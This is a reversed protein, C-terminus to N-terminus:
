TLFVYSYKEKMALFIKNAEENDETEFRELRENWPVGHNFVEVTCVGNKKSCLVSFM